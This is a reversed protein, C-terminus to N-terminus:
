TREKGPPPVAAATLARAEADFYVADSAVSAHLRHKKPCLFAQGSVRWTDNVREVYCGCLLKREGPQLDFESVSDTM